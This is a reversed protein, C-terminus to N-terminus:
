DQYFDELVAQTLMPNKRLVLKDVKTLAFVIMVWLVLGTMIVGFKTNVKERGALNFRVVPIGFM